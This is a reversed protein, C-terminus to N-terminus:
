RDNWCRELFSLSSSLDIYNFVELSVTGDFTKLKQVLFRLLNDPLQDLPGHDKGEKVGHLHIISVSEACDNFVSPIDAGYIILHGIDLCVSQIQAVPDTLINPSVFSVDLPFVM